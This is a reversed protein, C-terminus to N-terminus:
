LGNFVIVHRGDESAMPQNARAHTDLIALRRHGFSVAASRDSWFGKADPGRAQMVDCMQKVANEIVHMDVDGHRFLAGALGCM